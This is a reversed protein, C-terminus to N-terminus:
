GKLEKKIQELLPLMDAAFQQRKSMDVKFGYSGTQIYTFDGLNTFQQCKDLLEETKNLLERKLRPDNKRLAKEKEEILKTMDEMLGHPDVSTVGGFLMSEYRQYNRHSKRGFLNNWIPM